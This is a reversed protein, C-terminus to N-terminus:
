KTHTRPSGKVRADTHTMLIYYSSVCIPLVYLILVCPHRNKRMLANLMRAYSLCIAAAAAQLSGQSRFLAKIASPKLTKISMANELRIYIYQSMANGVLPSTIIISSTTDIYVCPYM